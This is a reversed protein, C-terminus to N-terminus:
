KTSIEYRRSESKRNTPCIYDIFVILINQSEHSVFGFSKPSKVGEVNVVQGSIESGSKNAVFNGSAIAKCGNNVESPGILEIMKAHKDNSITYTFGLESSNQKNLTFSEIPPSASVQLSVVLIVLLIVKM